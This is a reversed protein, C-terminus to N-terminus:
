SATGHIAFHLDRDADDLVVEHFVGGDRVDHRARRRADAQLAGAARHRQEAHTKAYGGAIVSGDALVQIGRPTAVHRDRQSTSCTSAAAHRLTRTSRAPPTLRAVTFDTDTGRAATPSRRRAVGRPHVAPREPRGRARAGRRAGDLTAGSDYATSLDLRAYGSTPAGFTTDLAGTATVRFLAIDRIPRRRGDNAVTASVVIKGDSQVAVDIEDSGGKFELTSTYM